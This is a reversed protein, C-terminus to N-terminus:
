KSGSALREIKKEWIIGAITLGVGAALGAKFGFRWIAYVGRIM